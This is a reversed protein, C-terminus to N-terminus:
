QNDRLALLIQGSVSTLDNIFNEFGGGKWFFFFYIFFFLIFIFYFQSIMKHIVDVLFMGESKVSIGLVKKLCIVNVM